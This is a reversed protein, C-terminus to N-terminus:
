FKNATSNTPVIVGASILCYDCFDPLYGYLKRRRFDIFRPSNWIEMFSTENINGFSTKKHLFMEDKIFFPRDYSCPSCPIVDGECTVLCITDFLCKDFPKIELSPFNLEIGLKSAISVAELFYNFGDFYLVEGSLEKTYPEYGLVSIEEIGLLSALRIFDPLENINKKMSVFLATFTPNNKKLKRKLEGFKKVNEIVKDFKAGVRISEFTEASAGDFSFRILDMGSLISKEMIEENLLMVNTPSRVKTKKNSASKILDIMEFVNKNLFPEANCNLDVCKVKAFIDELKKFSDMSMISKNPYNEELSCTICRLNCISSIDINLIEPLRMLDDMDRNKISSKYFRIKSQLRTFKLKNMIARIWLSKPNNYWVISSLTSAIEQFMDDVLQSM